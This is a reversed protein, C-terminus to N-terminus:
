HEVSLWEMVDEYTVEEKKIEEQMSENVAPELVRISSFDVDFGLLFKLLATSLTMINTYTNFIAGAMLADTDGIQFGSSKTAEIWRVVRGSVDEYSTLRRMEEQLTMMTNLFDSPTYRGTLVDFELYHKSTIAEDLFQTRLRSVAYSVTMLLLLCFLAEGREMRLDKGLEFTYKAKCRSWAKVLDILKGLSGHKYMLVQLNQILESKVAENVALLHFRKDEELKRREFNSAPSTTEGKRIFATYRTYTKKAPLLRFGGVADFEGKTVELDRSCEHLYRSPPITIVSIMKGDLDIQEFALSTIAPECRSNVVALIQQDTLKLYSTDSLPRMSGEQKKDTVGIVLRALDNSVGVNGNTLAIVDKTLEDWQGNVYRIWDEKNVGDPIAKRDLHYERKFDLKLGEPLSLINRLEESNM